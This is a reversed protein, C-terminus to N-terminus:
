PGRFGRDGRDDVTVDAWLIAEPRVLVLRSGAAGDADPHATLQLLGDAAVEIAALLIREGEALTVRVAAPRGRSEAFSAAAAALAAPWDVGGAWAPQRPRAIAPEVPEGRRPRPGRLLDTIRERVTAADAGLDTLVRAGVGEGERMLALLLHESGIYSHGLALAERLAVDLVRKSRPTFPIRGPPADDGAGVAAIVRDRAEDVDVGLDRLVAGAVGLDALLGLMLHETGIHAHGLARAETQAAVVVQRAGETFREFV